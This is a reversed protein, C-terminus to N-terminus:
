VHARGIKDRNAQYQSGRKSNCPQCSGVLNSRELALEPARHLEVLHDAQTSPRRKCWHCVPEDAIVQRRLQKWAKTDYIKRHDGTATM